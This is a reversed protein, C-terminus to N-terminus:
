GMEPGGMGAGAAACPYIDRAREAKAGSQIGGCGPPGRIPQMAQRAQPKNIAWGPGLGVGEARAPHCRAPSPVAQAPTM